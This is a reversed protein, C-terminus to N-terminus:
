KQNGKKNLGRRKFNAQCGKEIDIITEIVNEISGEYVCCDHDFIVTQFVKPKIEVWTRAETWYNYEGEQLDHLRWNIIERNDLDQVIMIIDQLDFDQDKDFMETEVVARIEQELKTM